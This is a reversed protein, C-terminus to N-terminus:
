HDHKRNKLEELSTFEYKVTEWENKEIRMVEETTIEKPYDFFSLAFKHDPFEKIRVGCWSSALELKTITYEKGSELLNNADEVINTFWFTHTGKYTIKSGIKPWQKM